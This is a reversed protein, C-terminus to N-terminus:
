MRQPPASLRNRRDSAWASSRGALRRRVLDALLFLLAPLPLALLWPLPVATMSFVHNIGPVFVLTLALALETVLGTAMWANSRLSLRAALSGDREAFLCGIQGGVICLFTLTAAERAVDSFAALPGFPRWGEVLYYAFFGALGLAAEVAGFFLFTKLALGQTLLPRGPPEPPAAM